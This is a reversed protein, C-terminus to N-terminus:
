MGPRGAAGAFPQKKCAALWCPKLLSRAEAASVSGAEAWGGARGGARGPQLRLLAGLRAQLQQVGARGLGKLGDEERGGAQGREAVVPVADRRRCLAACGAARQGCVLGGPPAHKQQQQQQMYQEHPRCEASRCVHMASEGALCRMQQENCAHWQQTESCEQQGQAPCLHNTENTQIRLGGFKVLKVVLMIDGGM